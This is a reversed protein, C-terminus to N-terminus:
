KIRFAVQIEKFYKEIGKFIYYALRERYKSLGLRKGDIPNSLFSTEVLISPMTAGHLVYFPGGKAQLNKVGRYKKRMGTILSNQVIGALQSSENMKSNAAMDALIYQVDDRESRSAKNERAATELAQNSKAFDLYYTEIGSAEKRKSANAHISIFIDAKNNNAVSTREELSIYIDKRRTLIVKYGFHRKIISELRLSIDLNVEKETLGKKRKAGNDKGGHGADIVITKIPLQKKRDPTRAKYLSSLAKLRKKAPKVMDGKPFKEIVKSYARHAAAYKKLNHFHIEGIRFMADDALRSRSYKETVKKFYQVALNLDNKKGFRKFSNQYLTGATFLADDALSSGPFRQYVLLFKKTCRTWNLRKAQKEKSSKLSYYSHKANKYLKNATEKAYSQSPFGSLFFFLMASLLYSFVPSVMTPFIADMHCFTLFLCHPLNQKKCHLVAPM